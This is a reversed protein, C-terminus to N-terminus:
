EKALCGTFRHLKTGDSLVITEMGGTPLDEYTRSVPRSLERQWAMGGFFAAVVLMAVLLTKLTFQPRSMAIRNQM